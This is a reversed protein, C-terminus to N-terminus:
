AVGASASVLGVEVEVEIPPASNLWLYHAIGQRHWRRAVDAPVRAEVVLGTVLATSQVGTSALQKSASEISKSETSTSTSM